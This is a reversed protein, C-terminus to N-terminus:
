RSLGLNVEEPIHDYHENIWNCLTFVPSLPSLQLCQVPLYLMLFEHLTISSFWQIKAVFRKVEQVDATGVQSLAQSALIFCEEVTNADLEEGWVADDVRAQRSTCGEGLRPKKSPPYADDHGRGQLSGKRSGIQHLTKPVKSNSFMDYANREHQSAQEPFFAFM